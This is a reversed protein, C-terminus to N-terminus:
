NAKPVGIFPRECVYYFAYALGLTGAFIAMQQLLYAADSPFGPPLLRMLGYAGLPIHVLYLSYSFSGVRRLGELWRPFPARMSLALLGTVIGGTIMYEVEAAQGAAARAVAHLANCAFMLAALRKEQPWLALAAGAGFLPWLDTFFFVPYQAASLGCAVAHLIVLGASRRGPPLFLLGAMLLYFAVEYSLSWYVWNITPVTTVPQTALTLTALVAKPTSPLATVDNVGRALKFGAVMAVVVLLSAYYPPLIRRARRWVFDRWGGSRFWTQFICYGSIVFFAPVGLHGYDWFVRWASTFVGPEGEHPIRNFHFLV